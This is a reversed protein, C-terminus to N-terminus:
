KFISLTCSNTYNFELKSLAIVITPESFEVKSLQQHNKMGKQQRNYSSENQPGETSFITVINVIPFVKQNRLLLSIKHRALEFYSRILFLWFKHSASIFWFNTFLLLERLVVCFAFGNKYIPLKAKFVEWARWSFLVNFLSVRRTYDIVTNKWCFKLGLM